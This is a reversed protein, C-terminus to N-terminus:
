DVTKGQILRNCDLAHKKFRELSKSEKMFYILEYIGRSGHVNQEIPEISSFIFKQQFYVLIQFVKSASFVIKMAKKDHFGNM